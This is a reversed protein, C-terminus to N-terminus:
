EGRQETGISAESRRFTGIQPQKCEKIETLLSGTVFGAARERSFNREISRRQRMDNSKDYCFQINKETM